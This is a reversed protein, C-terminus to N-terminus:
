TILLVIVFPLFKKLYTNVVPSRGLHHPLQLLCLQKIPGTEAVLGMRWYSLPSPERKQTLPTVM